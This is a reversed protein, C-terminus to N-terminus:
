EGSGAIVRVYQRKHHHAPSDVSIDEKAVPRHRNHAIRAAKVTLQIRRPPWERGRTQITLSGHSRTTSGYPESYIKQHRDREDGHDPQEGVHDARETLLAMLRSRAGLRILAVASVPRSTRCRRPPRARRRRPRGTGAWVAALRAAYWAAIVAVSLALGAKVAAMVEGAATSVSDRRRPWARDVADDCPQVLEGVEAVRDLRPGDARQVREAEVAPGRRSRDLQEQDLGLAHDGVVLLARGDPQDGGHLGPLLERLLVRQEGPHQGPLPHRLGVAHRERVHGGGPLGVHGVRVVEQGRGVQGRVVGAAPRIRCGHLLIEGADLLGDDRAGRDGLQGDGRGLPLVQGARQQVSSKLPPTATAFAMRSASWRILWAAQVLTATVLAMPRSPSSRVMRTVVSTARLM